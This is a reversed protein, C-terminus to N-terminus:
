IALSFQLEIPMTFIGDIAGSAQWAAELKPVAKYLPSDSKEKDYVQIGKSIGRPIELGGSRLTDSAKDGIM